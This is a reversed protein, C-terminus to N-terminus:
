PRLRIRYTTRRQLAKRTRKKSRPNQVRNKHSSKADIQIRQRLTPKPLLSLDHIEKGSLWAKTLEVKYHYKIGAFHLVFDGHHYVGNCAKSKINNIYSNFTRQPVIKVVSAVAKDKQILEALASQEQYHKFAYTTNELMRNLIEHAFPTNKIFYNGSNIGNHDAAIIIVYQDDLFQELSIEYNLILADADSWFLWEYDGLHRKIVHVKNWMPSWAHQLDYNYVICDYGHKIAYTQKNTRTMEGLEKYADNYHSIIALKSELKLFCLLLAICVFWKM